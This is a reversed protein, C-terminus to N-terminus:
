AHNISGEDAHVVRALPVIARQYAAEVEAPGKKERRRALPRQMAAAPKFGTRRMSKSPTKFTSNWTNM